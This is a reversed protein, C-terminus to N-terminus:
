KTKKTELVYTGVIQLVKTKMKNNITDGHILSNPLKIRTQPECTRIRIHAGTLDLVTVTHLQAPQFM